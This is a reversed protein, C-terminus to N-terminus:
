SNKVPYMHFFWGEKELTLQVRVDSYKGRRMKQADLRDYKLPSDLPIEFDISKGPKVDSQSLIAQMKKSEVVQNLLQVFQDKCMRKPFKDGKERRASGIWNFIHKSQHDDVFIGKRIEYVQKGGRDGIVKKSDFKSHKGAKLDIKKDKPSDTTPSDTPKSLSSYYAEFDKKSLSNACREHLMGINTWIGGTVNNKCKFCFQALEDVNYAGQKISGVEAFLEGDVSSLEDSSTEIRTASM